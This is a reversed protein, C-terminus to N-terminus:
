SNCAPDNFSNNRWSTLWFDEQVTTRTDITESPSPLGFACYVDFLNACMLLLLSMSVVEYGVLLGGMCLLLSVFSILNSRLLRLAPTDGSNFYGLLSSVTRFFHLVVGIGTFNTLGLGCQAVITAMALVQRTNDKNYSGEKWDSTLRNALEPNQEWLSPMIFESPLV